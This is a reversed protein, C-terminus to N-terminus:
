NLKYVTIKWNRSIPDIAGLISANLLRIKIANDIVYCSWTLGSEIAGVPSCNCISNQSIGQLPIELEYSSLNAISPFDLNGDIVLGKMVVERANSANTFYLNTGDYEMAGPEPNSLITGATLKLPASNSTGDSAPLNLKASPNLTGIGVNGNGRITFSGSDTIQNNKTTNIVLKTPLSSANPTGDMFYHIGGVEQMGYGNNTKFLLAGIEQNTNPLTPYDVTGGTNYLILNPPNSDASTIQFDNDGSGKFEFKEVPNDTGIGIKGEDTVVIKTGNANAQTSYILAEGNQNVGSKWEGSSLPFWDVAESDWYLFGKSYVKANKVVDNSLYILMGNQNSSPNVEALNTVRPILLGDNPNPNAANTPQIDLIAAPTTTNIGVQAQLLSFYLISMASLYKKKM